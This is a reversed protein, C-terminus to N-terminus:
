AEEERVFHEKATEAQERGADRVADSRDIYPGYKERGESDEVFYREDTMPM